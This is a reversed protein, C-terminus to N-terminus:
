NTRQRPGFQDLISGLIMRDEPQASTMLRRLVELQEPCLTTRHPQYWDALKVGGDYRGRTTEVPFGSASLAEIDRRITRENCGCVAAFNGISAKREKRLTAMLLDRREAATM